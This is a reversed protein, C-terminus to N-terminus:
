LSYSNVNDLISEITQNTADGKEQMKGVAAAAAFNILDAAEFQNRLGYILSAMFCDGSGVKDIINNLPLIMSAAPSTPQQLVAFYKEELRFTYAINKVSPFLQQIENMSESAADILENVSKGNSDKIASNIGLLKEAAWINGM